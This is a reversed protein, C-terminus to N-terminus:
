SRIRGLDLTTARLATEDYADLLREGVRSWDYLETATRYGGEAIRNRLPVDTLLQHCQVAFQEPSDALLINDNDAARLGEAGLSTSVVAKRMAWAELIKLRTGGGSRLPVVVATASALFPRVDPVTGTVEVGATGTQLLDTPANRGIVLVRSAPSRSRLRPLIEGVFYRVADVNPAWDMSGIFALTAPQEAGEVPSFHGTDV